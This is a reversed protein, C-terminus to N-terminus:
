KRTSSTKNRDSRLNQKVFMRTKTFYKKIFKTKSEGHINEYGYTIFKIIHDKQLVDLTHKACPFPELNDYLNPNEHLFAKVDGCFPMGNDLMYSRTKLPSKQTKQTYWKLWSSAIDVVTGDVDILITSM